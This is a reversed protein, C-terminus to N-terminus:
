VKSVREGSSYFRSAPPFDSDRASGSRNLGFHTYLCWDLWPPVPQVGSAPPQRTLPEWIRFKALAVPMLLANAYTCRLM